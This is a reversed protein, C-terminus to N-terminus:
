PQPALFDLVAEAVADPAELWPVHGVGPLTVRNTTPLAAELSDVAWRPRIDQDGDVVLAPTPLGRCAAILEAETPSQRKEETNIAANCDYNIPFWPTAMREAHTRATSPDPFDASWQLVALERDEAPTRARSNLDRLRPLDEGLRAAFDREYAPHWARGLGTGSVYVLKTVHAPHALAYRLALTAGWSHGLVAARALGYHRRVADLDAITRALSYPGRRESRGCGRQDWRIVRLRTALVAALDGFMDWLGPGGHCVILAEGEGVATTWLRCGDGAQILTGPHDPEAPVAPPAVPYEAGNM